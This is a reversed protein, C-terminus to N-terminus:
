LHHREIFFFQLKNYSDKYNNEKNLNKNNKLVDEIINKFFIIKNEKENTKGLNIGIIKNNKELIIPSGPINNNIDLFLKSERKKNMIGYSIKILGNNDIYFYYLRKNIYNDPNILENIELYDYIEDDKIIEIITFDMKDNTYKFRKLSLNITKCIKNDINIILIGNSSLIESGIIHNTTILCNLKIISIKFFFGMGLYKHIKEKKKIKYEINCFCKKIVQDLIELEIKQFINKKNDINFGIINNSPESMKFIIVIKM